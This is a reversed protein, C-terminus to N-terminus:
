EDNHVTGQPTLPFSRLLTARYTEIANGQAEIAKAMEEPTVKGSDYVVVAKGEEYMVRADRVGPLNRLARTMAPVCRECEMGTVRFIAQAETQGSVSSVPLGSLGIAQVKDHYSPCLLDFSGLGALGAVVGLVVFPKKRISM